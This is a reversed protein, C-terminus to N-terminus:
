LAREQLLTIPGEYGKEAGDGAQGQLFTGEGNGGEDWGKEGCLGGLVEPCQYAGAVMGSM